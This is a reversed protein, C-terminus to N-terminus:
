RELSETSRTAEFDVAFSAIELFHRCYYKFIVALYHQLHSHQLIWQLLDVAKVLHEEEIM